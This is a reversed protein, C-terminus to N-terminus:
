KNIKKQAYVYITAGQKFVASFYAFFISPLFLIFNLLIGIVISYLESLTYHKAKKLSGHKLFRYFSDMNIDITNIVSQTFTFVNYEFAGHTIRLVDFGCKELLATITKPAYHYLHRPADLHFWKQKTIKFELSDINPIAIFLFGDDKIIRHTKKLDSVPNAIHELSHWFTVVDFFSDSFECTSLDQNLINPKLDKSIFSCATSSPDIGYSEWGLRLMQKLFEGEGCGVDLIIGRSKFKTIRYTRIRQFILDFIKIFFRLAGKLNIYYDELYLNQKPDKIRPNLYILGCRACRVLRFTDAFVDNADKAFLFPKEEKSNECILCNTSEM